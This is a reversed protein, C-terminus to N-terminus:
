TARVQEYSPQLEILDQPVSWQALVNEPRSLQKPEQLRYGTCLAYCVCLLFTVYSLSRLAICISLLNLRLTIDPAHGEEWGWRRKEWKGADQVSSWLRTPCLRAQQLSGNGAGHM